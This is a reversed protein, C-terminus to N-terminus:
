FCFNSTNMNSLLLILTLYLFSVAANPYFKIYMKLALLAWILFQKNMSFQSIHAKHPLNTSSWTQEDPEWM